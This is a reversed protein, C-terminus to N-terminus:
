AHREDGAAMSRGPAGAALHTYVKEVARMRTEFALEGEIRQRAAAVRTATARPDDLTRTIAAAVAAPQRRPVLLGHVESTILDGTGGVATAVVPVELAMAELVANPTGETDSTQVLVDFAHALDAVDSRRGTFVCLDAIGLAQAQAVLRAHLSGDGVIVLRLAPRLGGLQAVADLLLDFRKERELRGIAGIVVAATPVKLEARMRADDEHRRRFTHPDIGNLVTTVRGAPVGAGILRERIPSSVAIVAPFRRLLLRDAPYYILRERPSVGSWGHVTSLPLIPEVRALGFALFDTKYDHAHVIDIRRDRILQRLPAWIGRDFSHRERIEVYDVPLQAAARDLTFLTDRVDRIYCVTVAFRRPDSRASGLLITKEPGGGVGRVSRLELIRLPRAIVDAAM